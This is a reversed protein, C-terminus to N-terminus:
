VPGWEPRWREIARQDLEEDTVSTQGRRPHSSRYEATRQKVLESHKQYHRRSALRQTCLRCEGCECTPPIGPM